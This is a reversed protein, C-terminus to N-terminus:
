ADACMQWILFTRLQYIIAFTPFTFPVPLNEPSLKSTLPPSKKCQSEKWCDCFDCYRYWLFESDGGDDDTATHSKKTSSSKRLFHPSKPLLQLLFSTYNLRISTVSVQFFPLISMPRTYFFHVVHLMSHSSKWVSL